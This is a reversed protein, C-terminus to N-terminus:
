GLPKVVPATRKKDLLLVIIEIRHKRKNLPCLPVTRNHQNISSVPSGDGRTGGIALLSSNQKHQTM